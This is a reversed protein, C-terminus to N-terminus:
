AAAAPTSPTRRGSAPWGCSRSPRCPPSRRRGPRPRPRRPTTTTPPGPARCDRDRQVGYQALMLDLVTTVLRGGIRRVPVGRVVHAVKGDHSDFRPLTVRVTETATDHLPSCRTSTASTSTGSAWGRRATASGSALRQPIAVEGTRADLVAPKWMANESTAEPIDLDGAVLYKGPRYAPGDADAGVRCGRHRARARRPLAPRHVAPQLPHLLRGAPRRLVGQPHRAGDGDRARRRHRAGRRGVRRRVQRERRLRALRRRGEPRPLAGRDDLARRAHPDDPRELGVHHPLRCGVLRGVRARRDPRRVDAALRQAPRRVLRLVLADARRHARPLPRRLRLLGAVDRPDALLRRDPRPGLAQGHLRPRGRHDRRGGGVDLPGPRGQRPGVQLAAGERPGPRDLGVRRRPRWRRRAQGRPVDRPARRARLPLSGPHALLHVLQLGRRAPVRPARVRAPRRRDVPLRDAAGGLHHHRGQRLGEVLVVRHLQRRPHQPRGQRPVLPRPLVRRRVRGGTAHISRNDDSVESRTFFRRTGVLADTLPGDLGATSM